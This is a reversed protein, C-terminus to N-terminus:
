SKDYFHYYFIGIFATFDLGVKEKVNSIFKQSINKPGTPINKQNCLVTRPLKYAVNM